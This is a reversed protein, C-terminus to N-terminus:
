PVSEILDEFSSVGIEKLMERKQEETNPIYRM